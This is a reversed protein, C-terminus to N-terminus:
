LLVFSAGNEIPVVNPKGGIEQVAKGHRKEEDGLGWDLSRPTDIVRMLRMFAGAYALTSHHTPVWYKVGGLRRYLDLGGAVGSTTKYGMVHGEKLGHLMALKEIPPEADLFGQLPGQDLPTGHPSDFIVEHIESEDETSHTWIMAISFNLFLPGALHAFNLWPPLFGREEVRWSKTAADFDPIVHITEFYNWAKVATAARPAAIVPINRNFTRLTPEHAHDPLDLTLLIADIRGRSDEEAANSAMVKGKGAFFAMAADEIQKVVGEIAESSSIAPPVTLAMWSFWSHLQIAPGVLWPEFVVHYFAKRSSEREQPPRPFSILWSNDGNLFTM